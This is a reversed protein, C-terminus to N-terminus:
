SMPVVVAVIRTPANLAAARTKTAIATPAKSLPTSGSQASPPRPAGRLARRRCSGDSWLRRPALRARHYLSVARIAAAGRVRGSFGVTPESRSNSPQPRSNSAVLSFSMFVLTNHWVPLLDALRLFRYSRQQRVLRLGYFGPVRVPDMKSELSHRDHSCFRVMGRRGFPSM